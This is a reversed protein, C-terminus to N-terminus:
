VCFNPLCMSCEPIFVLSRCCVVYNECDLYRMAMAFIRIGDIAGNLALPSGVDTTWLHSFRSLCNLINLYKTSADPIFLLLLFFAKDVGM